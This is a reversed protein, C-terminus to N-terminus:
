TREGKYYPLLLVLAAAGACIWVTSGTIDKMAVLTAQLSVKGKMVTSALRSAEFSDKGRVQGARAALLFQASSQPNDGRVEQVLRMVYYQQREQLWNGYVSTGIAPAVVNRVAVMLFLWTAFYRIPLHKMAFACTVSYLILMGAYHLLTPPIVHEYVGMTQYHFYMYLNAGLMLLFGAAYIYRFHVGQVVCVLTITLGILCGPIAWCSVTASELDGSCTSLKLYTTVFLTSSNILMLLLFIGVSYWAYRYRSIGLELLRGRGALASLWLFLGGCVCALVLAVRMSVSDFWDYTKGFVLVYCLAGMAVTLLLADPLLRWPLRCKGALAPCFLLAVLLVAVLMMGIVLFYTYEWRFEYAVWASVYNSFQVICLIYFYLLPMLETRAHESKYADEPTSPEYLFMDLTNIGLLYPAIVFITNLVLAVRLFGIFFCCVALLPVCETVACVGNFLALLAYGGLYVHKVNRGRLYPLMFPFVMSMGISACFSLFQFNEVLVGMTGAMENVNSLYTGGSFFLPVFLLLLVLAGLPKPVWPHFPYNTRM